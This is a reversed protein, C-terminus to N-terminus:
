SEHVGVGLIQFDGQPIPLRKCLVEAPCEKLPEQKQAEMNITMAM